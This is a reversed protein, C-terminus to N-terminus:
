ACDDEGVEEEKETGQEVEKNLRDSVQQGRTGLLLAFRCGEVTRAILDGVSTSSSLIVSAILGQSHGTTGQISQIFHSFSSDNESTGGGDDKTTNINFQDLFSLVNAMQTLLILPFSVPSSSLYATGPTTTATTGKDDDNMWDQVAYGHQYYSARKPEAVTIEQSLATLGAVVQEMLAHVATPSVLAAEKLSTLYNVGQGAFQVFLDQNKAAVGNDVYRPHYNNSTGLPLHCQVCLRFLAECDTVSDECLAAVHAHVATGQPVYEACIHQLLHQQLDPDVNHTTVHLLLHLAAEFPTSVPENHQHVITACQQLVQQQAPTPSPLSVTQDLLSLTTAGVTSTNNTLSVVHIDKTESM